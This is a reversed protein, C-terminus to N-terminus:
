GGFKIKAINLLEQKENKAREEIVENLLYNLIEGIQKGAKFGNEILISGNIALTKLSFCNNEEIIENAIKEVIDFHEMNVKQPNQALNDARQLALLEFFADRGMRNLRKKIYIKDEQIPTDHLSIIKCCREKTFNDYKYEEFFRRAIKESQANHGYFHGIGKDDITFTHVKGIDHLFAMLRLHSVPPTNEVVVATHTLIDYIHWSNKQDFDKMKKIDPLIYALIEYNELIANKVNKGCLFKNLESAIRERSINKLLTACELMAQKTKQEIEFGLTSSFRIARLIRLADETFRKKPEGIAKIIKNEIDARGGFLDVLTDSIPNYALANITFDRRSLDESLSSTFEVRSPHRNDGYEGDIRYTTIEVNEGEYVLTLTGHKIGTEVIKEGQFVKKMQEPTASATVDFDNTPVSMILDRVAGGVAYAEYGCETLMTIARKAGNSLKFM